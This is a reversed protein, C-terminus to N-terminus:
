GAAQKLYEEETLGLAAVVKREEANLAQASGAPKKGDLGSPDGVVPAAQVFQKFQELGGAQRCMAVYFDKTAPVIKGAQLAADVERNIATELEADTKQKLQQEANGARALAADYDARPVFKDLSPTQARNLATQVDSQLTGIANLAEVLTATEPLGLKALLEKPLMAIEKQQHNLALVDLNPKNTLGVSAVGHIVLTQPDYLLVPSYYRYERNRVLEAGKPTWDVRGWVAGGDRVELGKIWAAAPAPDGQPAKLETAHEIDIPVDLGRAAFYDVVGQPDPNRWARGDRGRVTEGAPILPLEAPPAEAAALEFNLAARCANQPFPASHHASATQTATKVERSM